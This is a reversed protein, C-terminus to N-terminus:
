NKQIFTQYWLQFTILTWIQRGYFLPSEDYNRKIKEIYAYDFIKQKKITKKSLLDDLLYKLDEKIWNDIPVFFGQKKRKIIEKPLFNSAVKKLIFKENFGNLKLKQPIQFSFEVIQHDLFPVRAELAHAMTTKDVVLLVDDILFNNLEAYSIQDLYNANNAFYKRQFDNFFIKDNEIISADLFLKKKEENDFISIIEFYSTTKNDIMKIFKNIRYFGRRGFRASYIMFKNILSLPIKNIFLPLTNKTLVTPITKIIRRMKFFKHHEYGNLIEDAGAGNLVVKVKKRAEKALLYSPISAPDGIPEDMNWIIEPLLKVTDPNVMIEKHDTNFTESVIRAYNLENFKEDGIGISFTKIKETNKPYNKLKSLMAVMTSSDIGGSLFVGYPVDGILRKEVSRILEKEFTKIFFDDSKKITLSKDLNLSWYRKLSLKRKKLDFILYHGQLLKSISKFLTNKGPCYRLTIYKSLANRDIHRKIEHVLIAKIESAFIFKERQFYYYLPKIGIRDRALFLINKKSNYLCFAFMGNFKELCKEEYEEYAHVIVEADTNSYFKHKKKELEERIEKFNYIEGNYILCISKDENYIPNRGRESLDIISLRKHGLSVNKDIYCGEDDPGRHEITKMMKRLLNKNDWNFGCIGCM